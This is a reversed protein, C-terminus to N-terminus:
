EELESVFKQDAASLKAIPLTVKEGSDARKLIVKGDRV